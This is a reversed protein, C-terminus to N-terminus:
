RPIRKKRSLFKIYFTVNPMANTHQGSSVFTAPEFGPWPSPNKLAIFIRLVGKGRPHSNFRSPGM